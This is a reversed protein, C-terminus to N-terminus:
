QEEVDEEAQAEEEEEEEERKKRFSLHEEYFDIITQPCKKRLIAGPIWSATGDAWLVNWRIGHDEDKEVTEITVEGDEWSDKNFIDVQDYDVLKRDPDVAGFGVSDDEGEAEEVPEEEKAKKVKKREASGGNVDKKSKKRKEKVKKVAVEEDDEDVDEEEEVEEKRKRKTGTSGVRKPRDGQKSEPLSDWYAEIKEPAHFNAAPEWTNDEEKYGVWSVYYTMTKGKCKHDLIEDVEFEEEEHVKKSKSRVM